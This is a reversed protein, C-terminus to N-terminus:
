KDGKVCWFERHRDSARTINIACFGAAEMMRYVEGAEYLAVGHRTFERDEICEKCTLCMVLKGGEGLVRWLELIAQPANEWYFISNVTCVKTFYASPYPLTEAKACKLELKGARVLSQYRKECFAVMAPSVDVGALCGDTVATVMRGILYGGGFGVELVRDDPRLALSNLAVDNLVSNRKNWLPALVWQGLIGSPNGLQKALLRALMM